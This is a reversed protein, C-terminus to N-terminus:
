RVPADFVAELMCFRHAVFFYVIESINWGVINIWNM